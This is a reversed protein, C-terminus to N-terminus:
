VPDGLHGDGCGRGAEPRLSGRRVGGMLDGVLRRGPGAEVLVAGIQREGFRDPREARCPVLRFEVLDAAQDAGRPELGIRLEGVRGRGHQAGVVPVAVPDVLDVEVRRVVLDDARGHTMAGVGRRPGVRLRTGRHGPRRGEHQEGLDLRAM